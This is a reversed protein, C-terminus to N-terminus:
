TPHFRIPRRALRKSIRRPSQICRRRAGPRRRPHTTVPEDNRQNRVLLYRRHLKLFQKYMYGTRRHVSSGLVLLGGDICMAMSPVAANVVEEDNSAAREDTRWHSCESGLIAVASRGRVLRADNTIIELSSGNRFEVLENTRRTIEKELIPQKLLGECYRRLIAAQKRDAGILIAVAQEGASQHKRWDTCLAARWVAIASLFRDKGARRGALLILRRAARYTEQNYKRGTAQEFLEIERPENLPIGDILKAVTRWTWFSPAAFTNGFLAPDVMAQSLSIDPTM